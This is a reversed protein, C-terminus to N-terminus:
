QMILLELMNRLKELPLGSDVVEYIESALAYTVPREGKKRAVGLWANLGGKDKRMYKRLYLRVNSGGIKILTAIDLGSLRSDSHAIRKLAEKKWEPLPTWHRGSLNELELVDLLNKVSAAFRGIKSKKALKKLSVKKGKDQLNKYTEYFKVLEAFSHSGSHRIRSMYDYARQEEWPANEYARRLVGSLIGCITEKREQEEAKWRARAEVRKEHQGSKDTYQRARERTVGSAKGIEELTLGQAILEDAVKKNM